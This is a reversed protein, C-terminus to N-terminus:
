RNVLLVYGVSVMGFFVLLGALGAIGLLQAVYKLRSKQECFQGHAWLSFVVTLLSGITFVATGAIGATLAPDGAKLWFTYSHAVFGIVVLWQLAVALLSVVLGIRIKM